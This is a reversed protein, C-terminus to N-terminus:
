PLSPHKYSLSPHNLLSPTIHSYLLTHKVPLIMLVQQPYIMGMHKAQAVPHITTSNLGLHTHGPISLKLKTMKVTYTPLQLYHDLHFTHLEPSFM